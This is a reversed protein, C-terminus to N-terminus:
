RHDSRPIVMSINTTGIKKGQVYLVLAPEAAGTAVTFTALVAGAVVKFAASGTCGRVLMSQLWLAFRGWVMVSRQQGALRKERELEAL